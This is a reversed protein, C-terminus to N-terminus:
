STHQWGHIDAQHIMIETRAPGSTKRKFIARRCSLAKSAPAAFDSAYPFHTVIPIFQMTDYIAFGATVM